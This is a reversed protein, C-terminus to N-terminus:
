GAFSVCAPTVGRVRLPNEFGVGDAGLRSWPGVLSLAPIRFPERSATLIVFVSWLRVSLTVYYTVSEARRRARKRSRRLKTHGM